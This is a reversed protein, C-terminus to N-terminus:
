TQMGSLKAFVDCDPDVDPDADGLPIRKRSLCKSQLLVPTCGVGKRGPDELGWILLERLGLFTEKSTCQQKFSTFSCDKFVGVLNLIWALEHLGLDMARNCWPSPWFTPVEMGALYEWSLSPFGTYLPMGNGHEM